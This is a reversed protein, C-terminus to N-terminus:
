FALVNNIHGTVWNDKNRDLLHLLAEERAAGVLRKDIVHVLVGDSPPRVRDSMIARHFTRQQAANLPHYHLSEIAAAQVDPEPDVVLQLLLNGGKASGDLNLGKAAAVRLEPEKARVFRRVFPLTEPLGGAGIASLLLAREAVETEAAFAAQLEGALEAAAGKRGGSLLTAVQHGLVSTAISHLMFDDSKRLSLVLDVTADEPQVMRHLQSVLAYFQPAGRVQPDSLLRRLAAQSTAHSTLISAAFERGAPTTGEALVQDVIQESLKPDHDCAAAARSRWMLDDPPEGGALVEGLAGLVEASSLIVPEPPRSTDGASKGPLPSEGLRVNGVNAVNEHMVGVSEPAVVAREPGTPLAPEPARVGEAVAGGRDLEVPTEALTPSPDGALTPTLDAAVNASDAAGGPPADKAGCAVVILTLPLLILLSGLWSRM